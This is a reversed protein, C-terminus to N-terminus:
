TENDFDPAFTCCFNSVSFFTKRNQDKKEEQIIYHTPFCFYVIALNKTKPHHNENSLISLHSIFVM